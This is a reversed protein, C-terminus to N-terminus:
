ILVWAKGHYSRKVEVFFGDQPKTYGMFFGFVDRRGCYTKTERLKRGRVYQRVCQLIKFVIWEKESFSFYEENLIKKWWKEYGNWKMCILIYWNKM